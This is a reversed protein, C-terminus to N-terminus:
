IAILKTYIYRDYSTTIQDPKYTRSAAHTYPNTQTAYRLAVSGREYKRYLNRISMRQYPTGIRDGKAAGYEMIAIIICYINLRDYLRNYHDDRSYENILQEWYMAFLYWVIMNSEHNGLQQVMRVYCAEVMLACSDYHLLNMDDFGIIHARVDDQEDKYVIPVEVCLPSRERQM